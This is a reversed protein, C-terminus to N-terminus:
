GPGRIDAVLDARAQRVRQQTREPSSGEVVVYARRAGPDDAPPVTDGAAYPFRAGRVWPSIAIDETGTYTELRGAPLLFFGEEAYQSADPVPPTERGALAAFLAAEMDFGRAVEVLLPIRDPAFGPRCAVLRPGDPLWVFETHAAGLRYGAATLRERALDEVQGLEAVSLPAPHLHGTVPFSPAGGTRQMTVGIVRHCGGVTLSEVSLRLGAAPAGANPAGAAPEAPVPASLRRVAEPPNPSLGLRWAEEAVPPVSAGAGCHLVAHAGTREATRAILRRLAAPDAFDALLLEESTEEIRAAFSGELLEPDWVSWVRFGAEAAKTVHRHQPMVLLLANQAHQSTVLSMGCSHPATKGAPEEATGGGPVPLVRQAGRM